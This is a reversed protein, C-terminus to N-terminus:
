RRDGLGNAMDCKGGSPQPTEALFESVKKHDPPNSQLYIYGDFGLMRVLLMLVIAEIGFLYEAKKEVAKLKKDFEGAHILKHRFGLKSRSPAKIGLVDCSRIVKEPFSPEANWGKIVNDCLADTRHREWKKTLTRLLFHLLWRFWGRDLRDNLNADIEPGSTDGNVKSTIRDLLTNLLSCKVVLYKTGGVQSLLGITVSWWDRDAILVKEGAELLLKVNCPEWNDALASRRQNFALLGPRRDQIDHFSGDELRNELRVWKIDRGLALTLLDTIDDATHQLAAGSDGDRYETTLTGSRVPETINSDDQPWRGHLDDDLTWERGAFTFAIRNRRNGGSTVKFDKYKLDIQKSTYDVNEVVKHYAKLSDKLEAIKEPTLPVKPTLVETWLDGGAIRYNALGFVWRRIGKGVTGSSRTSNGLYCQLHAEAPGFSVGKIFALQGSLSDGGDLVGTFGPNGFVEGVVLTGKCFHNIQNADLSRIVVTIAEPQDLSNFDVDADCEVVGKKIPTLDVTVKAKSTESM